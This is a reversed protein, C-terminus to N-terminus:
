VSCHILQVLQMLDTLVLDPKLEACRPDEDRLRLSRRDGAFLATQFGATHAPYIDNLMDNGLYLVEVPHIGRAKLKDAAMEFLAPSPKAVQYKFSYFVLEPDFGLEQPAANLFWEFLLPTYFQANSIIGMTMEEQRCANLMASLQPMPSVPNTIFEFEVAFERAEIQDEIQLIEQWIKEIIIEPHDTGKARLARHRAEICGHLQHLIEEPARTINHKELLHEIRQHDPSNKRSVSIDGSDSIFLTGYIDFLICAVRQRLKGRPSLSTPLPKLPRLYPKILSRNM